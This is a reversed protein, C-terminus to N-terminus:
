PRAEHFSVKRFMLASKTYIFRETDTMWSHRFSFVIEAVVVWLVLLIVTYTAFTKM